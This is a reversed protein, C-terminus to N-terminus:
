TRALLGYGLFVAALGGVNSMLVYATASLWEADQILRLTELAFSSFTTFGGLLGVMLAMRVSPSLPAGRDLAGALLGIALCGAVNIALTEWPFMGGSARALWGGLVYRLLVGVAGAGGVFVWIPVAPTM